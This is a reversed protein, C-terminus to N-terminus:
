YLQGSHMMEQRHQHHVHNGSSGTSHATHHIPAHLSSRGHVEPLCFSCGLVKELGLTIFVIQSWFVPAATRNYM